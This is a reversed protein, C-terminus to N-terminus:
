REQTALERSQRNPTRPPGGEQQEEGRVASLLKWLASRSVRSIQMQSVGLENGIERQTMGKGFRMKLVALERQRLVAVRSSIRAEADGFGPDTVGVTEVVTQENDDAASRPADLSRVQRARQAEMAELADDETVGMREAIEPVTPQEGREEVLDTVAADLQMVREQLGRPIRINGVHDRFHRRLEGLITPVAYSPFPKGVSPDFRDIAKVLGLSAVQVLDDFSETRGQYRGALSRALPLYREALEARAEPSRDEAYRRFLDLERRRDTQM